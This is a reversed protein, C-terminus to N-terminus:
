NLTTVVTLSSSRKSQFSKANSNVDKSKNVTAVLQEVTTHNDKDYSGCNHKFREKEHDLHENTVRTATHVQGKTQMENGSTEDFLRMGCKQHIFKNTVSSDQPKLIKNLLFNNGCNISSGQLATCPFTTQIIKEFTMLVPDSKAANACSRREKINQKVRKMIEHKVRKNQLKPILCKSKLFDEYNTENEVNMERKKINKESDHLKNLAKTLSTLITERSGTSRSLKKLTIHKSLFKDINSTSIVIKALQDNNSPGELCQDIIRSYTFVINSNIFDRLESPAQVVNDKLGYLKAQMHALIYIPEFSVLKMCGMQVVGEEFATLYKIIKKLEFLFHNAKNEEKKDPAKNCNDNIQLRINPEDSTSNKCANKNVCNM